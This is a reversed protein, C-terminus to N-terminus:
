NTSLVLKVIVKFYLRSASIGKIALIKTPELKKCPNKTRRNRNSGKGTVSSVSLLEYGYMAVLLNKAFTPNRGRPVTSEALTYAEM